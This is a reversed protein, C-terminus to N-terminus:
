VKSRRETGEQRALVRESVLGKVVKIVLGLRWMSMVQEQCERARLRGVIRELAEPGVCWGLGPRVTIREYFMSTVTRKPGDGDRGIATMALLRMDMYEMAESPRPAGLAAGPCCDVWTDM